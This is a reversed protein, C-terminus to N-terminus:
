RSIHPDSIIALNKATPIPTPKYAPRSIHSYIRYKSYKSSTERSASLNRSSSQLSSLRCSRDCCEPCRQCTPLPALWSQLCHLHEQHTQQQHHSFHWRDNTHHSLPLANSKRDVPRPNLKRGTAKVYCLDVWGQMGRTNSFRTGAESPSEWRQRTAPLVKHDWTAHSNGM